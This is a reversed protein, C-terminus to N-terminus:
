FFCDRTFPHRRYRCHAYRLCDLFPTYLHVSLASARSQGPYSFARFKQMNPECCNLNGRPGLTIVLIAREREREEKRGHLKGDGLEMLARVYREGNKESKRATERLRQM